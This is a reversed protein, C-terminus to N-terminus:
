SRSLVASLMAAERDAEIQREQMRMKALNEREQEEATKQAKFQGLRMSAKELEGMRGGLSGVGGLGMRKFSDSISTSPKQRNPNYIGSLTQQMSKQAPRYMENFARVQQTPDKIKGISDNIRSLTSDAKELSFNNKNTM